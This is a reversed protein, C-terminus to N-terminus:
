GSTITEQEEGLMRYIRAILEEGCRVKHIHADAQCLRLMDQDAATMRSTLMIVRINRCRESRKIAACVEYGSIDNMSVDLVVLDPRWNMVMSLAGMGTAATQTKFGELDIRFKLIAGIDPNADVILIKSQKVNSKM